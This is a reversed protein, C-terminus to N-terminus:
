TRSNRRCEPAIVYDVGAKAPSGWSAARCYSAFACQNQYACDTISSFSATRGKSALSHESM